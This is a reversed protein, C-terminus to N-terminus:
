DNMIDPYDTVVAYIGYKEWRLIKARNNMTYPILKFGRKVLAKIVGSWLWHHNMAIFKTNLSRARRTAIISSWKHLVVLNAKPDKQRISKLIPYSFSTIFTNNPLHVKDLTDAILQVNCGPKIDLLYPRKNGLIKMAEDFTLLSPATEKLQKYPTNKIKLNNISADHNIILLGDSTTRIDFEIFDASNSKLVAEFSAKTNEPALGKAGRHSIILM